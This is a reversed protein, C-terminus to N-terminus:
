QCIKLFLPKRQSNVDIRVIEKNRFKDYINIKEAELRGFSVESWRNFFVYKYIRLLFDIRLFVESNEKILLPFYRVKQQSGDKNFLKSIIISEKKIDNELITPEMISTLVSKCRYNNKGIWETQIDNVALPSRSSNVVKLIMSWDFSFFRDVQDELNFGVASVTGPVISVSFRGASSEKINISNNIIGEINLVNPNLM